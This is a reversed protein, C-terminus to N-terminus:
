NTIALPIFVASSSLQYYYRPTYVWAAVLHDGVIDEPYAMTTALPIFRASSSLLYYYRLYSGWAVVLRTWGPGIWVGM